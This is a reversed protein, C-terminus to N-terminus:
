RRAGLKKVRKIITDLTEVDPRVGLPSAECLNAM